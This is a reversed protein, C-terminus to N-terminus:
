KQKRLIEIIHDVERRTQKKLLRGVRVADRVDRSELIKLTKEAIYPTLTPSINEQDTLVRITVEVFQSNTYDKFRLKCFRSLLEEPIKTLRNASAFVWTRFYRKRHRRWKTESLFGTQTLSLLGTLNEADDIKDIEDIILYKPSENFMVEYLGAKSLSSGLVFRNKPLRTLEQLILTKASAVSGHLICHIPNQSTIIRWLIDKKEKHGVVIQFLDPPIESEEEQVTTAAMGQYDNLAKEIAQLNSTRFLTCKNSKFRIELIRKTVLKNLTRADGHVQHWEFGHYKDKAPAPNEKEWRVIDGIIRELEGKSDDSLVKLTETYVVEEPISHPAEM